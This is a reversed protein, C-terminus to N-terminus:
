GEQRLRYGLKLLRSIGGGIGLKFIGGDQLADQKQPLSGGQDDAAVEDLEGWLRIM